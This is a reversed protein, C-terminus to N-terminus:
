GLDIRVRSFAGVEDVGNAASVGGVAGGRGIRQLRQCHGEGRALRQFAAAFPDRNERLAFLEDDESRPFRCSSPVPTVTVPSGKRRGGSSTRRDGHCSGWSVRTAFQIWGQSPSSGNSTPRRM